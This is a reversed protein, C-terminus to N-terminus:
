IGRSGQKATTARSSLVTHDSGGEGDAKALAEVKALAVASLCSSLMTYDTSRRGDTM